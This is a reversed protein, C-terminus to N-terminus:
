RLRSVLVLPNLRVGNPLQTWPILDSGAEPRQAKVIYAGFLHRATSPSLPPLDTQWYLKKDRTWAIAYALSKGVFNPVRYTPPPENVGGPRGYPGNDVNLRVASGWQVRTGAMPRQLAVYPGSTPFFHTTEPIAVRLGKARLRDFTEPVGNSGALSPVIVTRPRKGETAYTMGAGLGFACVIGFGLLIRSRGDM